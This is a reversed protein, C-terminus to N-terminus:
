IGLVGSMSNTFCFESITTSRVFSGCGCVRCSCSIRSSCCSGALRAPEGSEEGSEDPPWAGAVAVTAGALCRSEENRAVLSCCSCSRPRPLGCLPLAVLSCAACLLGCSWCKGACACGWCCSLLPLLWGTSGMLRWSGGLGVLKLIKLPGAGLTPSLGRTGRFDSKLASRSAFIRLCFCFTLCCNCCCCCCCCCCDGCGCCAGCSGCCEGCDGWVLFQLTVVLGAALTVADADADADANV